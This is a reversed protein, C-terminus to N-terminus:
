TVWRCRNRHASAYIFGYDIIVPRDGVVGWNVPRCIRDLKGHANILMNWQITVDKNSQM